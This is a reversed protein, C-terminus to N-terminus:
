PGQHCRRQDRKREHVQALVLYSEAFKPHFETNLQLWALADDPKQAALSQRGLDLLVPERFDYAETGLYKQRLERYLAVAAAEGKGTM